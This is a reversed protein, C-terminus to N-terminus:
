DKGRHRLDRAVQRLRKEMDQKPFAAGEFMISAIQSWNTVVQVSDPLAALEAALKEYGEPEDESWDVHLILIPRLGSAAYVKADSFKDGIGVVLNPFTRKMEALRTHKYPESGIRLTGATSTLVPGPPFGNSVLWRKTLAGLFDPRQTLYVITQDKALRQMVAAAGPMPQADGSLVHIFGSAVLTKDLDVVAFKADKPRTAVRLEVDEVASSPQDDANLCVRVVHDGPKDPAKWKVAADGNKDTRVEALLTDGLVFQVRRGAVGELRLGHRLSASLTVEQGPEVVLDGVLLVTGLRERVQDVLDGLGAPITAAGGALLAAALCAAITRRWLLTM